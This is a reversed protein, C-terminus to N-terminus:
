QTVRRKTVPRAKRSVPQYNSEDLRDLAENEVVFNVLAESFGNLVVFKSYGVGNKEASIDMLYNYSGFAHASDPRNVLDCDQSDCIVIVRDASKEKEYLFDMAQKVFIGGGGLEQEAQKIVERLAFGRRAPVLKSASKRAGDNGATAYVVVEESLERLLIALSIATDMRNLESKSSLASQMSGSVDVVIITKGRLKPLAECSKFMLEELEPEFKPAHKAATIFRFPLVRKPDCNKLAKRILSDPVGAQEMNRLNRLLAMAGLKGENLLREWSERKNEGKGASLEVEWTDPTTLTGDVLKKWLREQKKDVPKAHCLFLVDRLKVDMDKNWKALQYEDFKTFARALGKKVQNALPQKKGKWYLSVFEGLEDPRQIIDALTDAVFQRHQPSKAMARAVWLPAHRLKQKNRAESAIAAVKAPEVETVLSAIRDGVTQGDVYFNDEWLLCALVSRRLQLETSIRSAVAGEATRPVPTLTKRNTKM